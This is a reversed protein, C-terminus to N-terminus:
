SPFSPGPPPVAPGGLIERLAGVLDQSGGAGNYVVKGEGDFILVVATGPVNYNRVAEGNGDFLYPYGPSHEELHRKIQDPTQSVAVAVAVVNVQNGYTAQVRDMEPQLRRCQGCWHAWFEVLAPKGKGIFDLLEAPNGDLDVLSAEPASSGSPLGMEQARLGPASLVMALFLWGLLALVGRTASIPAPDLLHRKRM